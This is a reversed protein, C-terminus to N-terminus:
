DDEEALEEPDDWLSEVRLASVEPDAGGTGVDDGGPFAYAVADAFDDPFVPRSM